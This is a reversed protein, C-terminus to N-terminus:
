RCEPPLTPEGAEVLAQNLETTTAFQRFGEGIVLDVAADSRRPDFQADAKNQLMAQVLAVKGVARPGYRLVGVTGAPVTGPPVSGAAVAQTFGRNRLATVVTRDVSGAGTGNMVRVGVQEPGEPLRLDVDPCRGAATTAPQSPSPSAATLRLLGTGAIGAILTLGAAAVVVRRRARARGRERVAGAPALRVQRVDEDLDLLLDRVPRPM